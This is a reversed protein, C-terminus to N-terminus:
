ISSDHGNIPGQEIERAVSHGARGGGVDLVQGVHTRTTLMRHVGGRAQQIVAVMLVMRVVHVVVSMTVVVMM